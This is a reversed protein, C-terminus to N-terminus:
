FEASLRQSRSWRNKSNTLKATLMFTAAVALQVLQHVIKRGTNCRLQSYAALWADTCRGALLPQPNKGEDSSPRCPDTRTVINTRWKTSAHFLTVL